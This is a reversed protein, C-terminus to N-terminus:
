VRAVLVFSLRQGRTLSKNSDTIVDNVNNIQYTDEVKSLVPSQINIIVEQQEFALNNNNM